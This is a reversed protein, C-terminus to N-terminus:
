GRSIGRLADRITSSLIDQLHKTEYRSYKKLLDVGHELSEVTDDLFGSENAIAVAETLFKMLSKYSADSYSNGLIVATILEDIIFIRINISYEEGPHVSDIDKVANRINTIKPRSYGYKGRRNIEKTVVKQSKEKLANIDPKLFFELYDKAEKRAAYLDLILETKEESTM